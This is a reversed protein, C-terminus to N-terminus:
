TRDTDYICSSVNHHVRLCVQEDPLAGAVMDAWTEVVKCNIGKTPTGTKIAALISGSAHMMACALAPSMMRGGLELWLKSLAEHSPLQASDASVLIKSLVGDLHGLATIRPENANTGICVDIFLTCLESLTPPGDILSALHITTDLICSAVDGDIVATEITISALRSIGASIISAHSILRALQTRLLASTQRKCLLSQADIKARVPATLDTSVSVGNIMRHVTVLNIVELHAALIEPCRFEEPWM